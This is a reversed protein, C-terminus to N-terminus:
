EKPLLLELGREVLGVQASLLAAQAKEAPPGRIDSLCWQIGSCLYRASEAPTRSYTGGYVKERDAPPVDSSPIYHQRRVHSVLVAVALGRRELEAVMDEVSAINLEVSGPNQDSM